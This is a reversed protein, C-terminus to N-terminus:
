HRDRCSSSYAWGCRHPFFRCVSLLLAAAQSLPRCALLDGRDELPHDSFDSLGPRLYANKQPAIGVVGTRRDKVETFVVDHFINQSKLGERRQDSFYLRKDFLYRLSELLLSMRNFHECLSEIFGLGPRFCASDDGFDFVVSESRVGTEDDGVQFVPVAPEDILRAVAAPPRHLKHDLLVLVMQQRVAGRACTKGGVLNPKKEMRCGIHKKMGEPCEM